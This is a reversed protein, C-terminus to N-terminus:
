APWALRRAAVEDGAPYWRADRLGAAQIWALLGPPADAATEVRELAAVVRRRRREFSILRLGHACEPPLAAEASVGTVLLRERAHPAEADPAATEPAAAEPAGAPAPWGASPGRLVEGWLTAATPAPGAGIGRLVLEGADRHRLVFACEAGRVSGLASEAAVLRLRTSARWGGGPGRRLSGVLRLRLGRRRAEAAGHAAEEALGSWREQLQAWPCEEPLIGAELALVRLKRALDAGSLDDRPDPEAVGSEQAARLAQPLPEGRELRELIFTSTASAVAHLSLLPDGRRARLAAVVPVAGGVCAEVDLSAGSARALRRLAPGHAAVLDKNATVTRIGAALAAEVVPRAAEAGPLADVVVDPRSALAAGPDTALPVGAVHAPRAAQGRRVLVSVIEAGPHSGAQRLFEGGVTGAGLVAVRLRLRRPPAAPPSSPSAPTARLSM